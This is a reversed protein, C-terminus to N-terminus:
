CSAKIQNYFEKEKESLQTEIYSRSLDTNFDKGKAKTVFLLHGLFYRYADGTGNGILQHIDAINKKEILYKIIFFRRALLFSLVNKNDINNWKSIEPHKYIEWKSTDQINQLQTYDSITNSKEKLTESVTNLDPCIANINDNTLYNYLKIYNTDNGNRDKKHFKGKQGTCEINPVYTKNIQNEANSKKTQEIVYEILTNGEEHFWIFQIKNILSKFFEEGKEQSYAFHLYFTGIPYIKNSDSNKTISCLPIIVIAYHPTKNFGLTVGAEKIKQLYFNLYDYIDDISKEGKKLTTNPEKKNEKEQPNDITFWEVKRSFTPPSVNDNCGIYIFAERSEYWEEHETPNFGGKETQVEEIIKTYANLLATRKSETDHMHSFLYVNGVGMTNALTARECLAFILDDGFLSRILATKHNVRHSRLESSVIRAYADIQKFSDM